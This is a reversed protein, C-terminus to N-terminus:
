RSAAEETQRRIWGWVRTLPQSPSKAVLSFKIRLLEKEPSPKMYAAQLLVAEAVIPSRRSGSKNRYSTLQLYRGSRWARINATKRGIMRNNGPTSTRETKGPLRGTGEHDDRDLHHDLGKDDDCM